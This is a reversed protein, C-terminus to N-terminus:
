IAQLEKQLNNCMVLSASVRISQRKQSKSEGCIFSTALVMRLLMSFMWLAARCKSISAWSSSSVEEPYLVRKSWTSVIVGAMVEAVVKEKRVPRVKSLVEMSPSAMKADGRDLVMLPLLLPNVISDTM